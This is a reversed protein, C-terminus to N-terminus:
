IRGGQIKGTKMILDENERSRKVPDSIERNIEQNDENIV